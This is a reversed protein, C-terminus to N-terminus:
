WQPMADILGMYYKDKDRNWYRESLDELTIEGLKLKMFDALVMEDTYGTYSNFAITLRFTKDKKPIGWVGTNKAIPYAGITYGHLNPFAETNEMHWDELQIAVGNPTEAIEIVKM